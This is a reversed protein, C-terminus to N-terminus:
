KSKSIINKVFHSELSIKIINKIEVYDTFMHFEKWKEEIIWTLNQKDYKEFNETFNKLSKQYHQRSSRLIENREKSMEMNPTDPFRENNEKIFFYELMSKTNKNILNLSIKINEKNQVLSKQDIQNQNLDSSENNDKVKESNSLNNQAQSLDKKIESVNLDEVCREDFINEAVKEDFINENEYNHSANLDITTLNLKKSGEQYSSKSRSNFSNKSKYYDISLDLQYKQLKLIENKMKMQQIAFGLQYSRNLSLIQVKKDEYSEELKIEIKSESKYDETNQAIKLNKHLDLDSVNSDVQLIKKLNEQFSNIIENNQTFSNNLSDTKNRNNERFSEDNKRYFYSNQNNTFSTIKKSDATKLSKIKVFTVKSAKIVKKMLNLDYTITKIENQLKIKILFNYSQSLTLNLLQSKTSIQKQKLFKICSQCFSIYKKILTAPISQFDSPILARYEFNLFFYEQTELNLSEIHTLNLEKLKKWNISFYSGIKM